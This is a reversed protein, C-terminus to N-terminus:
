SNTGLKALNDLENSRGDLRRQTWVYDPWPEVKNAIRTGEGSPELDITILLGPVIYESTIMLFTGLALLAVVFPLRQCTPALLAISDTM